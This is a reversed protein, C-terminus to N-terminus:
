QGPFDVRLTEGAQLEVPKEFSVKEDLWAKLTYKGPPLNPLRYNGNTATKVFYPTDVVLITARMHDHIECFLLVPGPQDFKQTAPKDDKRYRGLDFRKTKSYSFVNHYIEDQNPFTVLTGKQVPLLGYAFQLNKQSLEVPKPHAVLNTAAAPFSGVLYVVATPPEPDAVVIGAAQYRQLVAKNAPRAAPLRVTGEVNAQARAAGVFPTLLALAALWGAYARSGPFSAGRRRGDLHATVSM